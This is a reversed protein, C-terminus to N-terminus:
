ATADECEQKAQEPTTIRGSIIGQFVSEPVQALTIQVCYDLLEQENM